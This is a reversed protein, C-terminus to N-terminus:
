GRVDLLLQVALLRRCRDHLNRDLGPLGADQVAV